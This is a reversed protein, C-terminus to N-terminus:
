IFKSIVSANKESKDYSSILLWDKEAWYTLGQPIMNEAQGPVLYDPNGNTGDMPVAFGSFYDSIYSQNLKEWCKMVHERKYGTTVSDSDSTLGAFGQVTVSTLLMITIIFVSLSKKFLKM